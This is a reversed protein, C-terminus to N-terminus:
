HGGGSCTKAAADWHLNWGTTALRLMLEMKPRSLDEFIASAETPHTSAQAHYESLCLAAKTEDQLDAAICEASRADAPRRDVPCQAPCTAVADDVTAAMGIM